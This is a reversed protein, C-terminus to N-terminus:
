IGPVAEAVPVTRQTGRETVLTWANVPERPGDYLVSSEERQEALWAAREAETAFTRVILRRGLLSYSGRATYRIGYFRV